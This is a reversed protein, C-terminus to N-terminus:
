ERILLHSRHLYEDILPIYYESENRESPTGKTLRGARGIANRRPTFGASEDSDLTM